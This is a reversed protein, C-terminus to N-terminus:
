NSNVTATITTVVGNLITVTHTYSKAKVTVSGSESKAIVGETITPATTATVQWDSPVYKKILDVAPTKTTVSADYYEMMCEAQANSVADRITAQESVKATEQAKTILGNDSSLVYTITVGALILLVVITVVLAVLTIGRENRM